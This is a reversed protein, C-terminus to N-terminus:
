GSATQAPPINADLLEDSQGEATPKQNEFAKLGVYGASSIGLLALAESGYAPFTSTTVFTYLFALGYVLNFVVCQFRHVSLGSEDSLIDTFFDKSLEDQHLPVNGRTQATERQRGDIIRASITTGAGIGLLVLCTGTIAPTDGNIGCYLIVSLVIVFTWWM